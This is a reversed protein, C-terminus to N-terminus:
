EQRLRLPPLAIQRGKEKPHSDFSVPNAARRMSRWPPPQNAWKRRSSAEAAEGIAALVAVLVFLIFM